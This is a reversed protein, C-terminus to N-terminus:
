FSSPSDRTARLTPPTSAFTSVSVVFRKKKIGLKTLIVFYVADGANEMLLDEKIGYKEIACRDLERMEAVNSIKM